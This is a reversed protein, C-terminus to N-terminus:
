LHVTDKVYDAHDDDNEGDQRQEPEGSRNRGDKPFFAM